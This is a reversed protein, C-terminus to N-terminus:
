VFTRAESDVADNRIEAFGDEFVDRPADAGFDIRAEGKVGAGGNFFRPTENRKVFRAADGALADEDFNGRGPFAAFRGSHEFLFANM